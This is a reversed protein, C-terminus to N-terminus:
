RARRLRAVYGVLPAKWPPSYGLPIEGGPERLVPSSGRL